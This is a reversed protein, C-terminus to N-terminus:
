AARYRYPREKKDVRLKVGAVKAVAQMSISPWETATPRERTCGTPRRRLALVKATKSTTKGNAKKAPTKKAKAKTMAIRRHTAQRVSTFITDYIFYIKQNFLSAFSTQRSGSPM